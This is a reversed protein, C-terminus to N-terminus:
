AVVHALQMGEDHSHQGRQRRGSSTDFYDLYICSGNRKSVTMVRQIVSGPGAEIALLGTAQFPSRRLPAWLDM